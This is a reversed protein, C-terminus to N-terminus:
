ETARDRPPNAFIFRKGPLFQEVGAWLILVTFVGIAIYDVVLMAHGGM